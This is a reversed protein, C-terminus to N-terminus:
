ASGAPHTGSWRALVGNDIRHGGDFRHMEVPVGASRLRDADAAVREPPVRVDRDGVVLHLPEPAIAERLRPGPVDEPVIGAWCVLRRVRRESRTVWRAGASVGQSFGHVDLPLAAPVFEQVVHDLYAVLDDVERALDERTVWSAGVVRRSATMEVYFRSLGEPAVLIRGPRAAARFWHLIGRALMGYGHLVLWAEDAGAADGVIGVRAHRRVVVSHLTAAAKPHSSM